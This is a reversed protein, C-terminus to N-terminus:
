YKAYYKIAETSTIYSEEKLLEIGEEFSLDKEIRLHKDVWNLTKGNRYDYYKVSFFGAFGILILLIISVILFKKM